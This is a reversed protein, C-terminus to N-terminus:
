LDGGLNDTRLTYDLPTWDPAPAGLKRQTLGHPPGADRGYETGGPDPRRPQRLRQPRDPLAPLARRWGPRHAPRSGAYRLDPPHTSGPHGERVWHAFVQRHSGPLATSADGKIREFLVAPRNRERALASVIAGIETRPDADAIRLLEGRAEVARIWERLDHSGAPKRVGAGVVHDYAFDQFGASFDVTTLAAYAIGVNPRVDGGYGTELMRQVVLRNLEGHAIVGQGTSRRDAEEHTTFYSASERRYGNKELGERFRQAWYGIYEELLIRGLVGGDHRGM